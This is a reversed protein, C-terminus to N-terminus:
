AHGAGKLGAFFRAIEAWVQEGGSFGQWRLRIVGVLRYCEDISVRYGDNAGGIRNVLLAEIDPELETLVPNDAELLGWADLPILSETAGAPSPYFAAVRDTASSRFFFALGIPISLAEWHADSLRFDVLQEARRPVRKWRTGPGESFLLTCADCACRLERKRPDVLHPHGAQIPTACLECGEREERRRALQRLVSLAGPLARGAANM